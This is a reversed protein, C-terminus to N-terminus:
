AVEAEERVREILEEAALELQGTLIRKELVGRIVRVGGIGAAFATAQMQPCERNALGFGWVLFAASAGTLINGIWGPDWAPRGDALRIRRPWHFSGIDVVCNMMGGLAGFLSVVLGTIFLPDIVIPWQM